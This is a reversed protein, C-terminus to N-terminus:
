KINRTINGTKTQGTNNVDNDAIETSVRSISIAGDEKEFEYWLRVGRHFRKENSCGM